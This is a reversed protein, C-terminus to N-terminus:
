YGGPGGMRGEIFKNCKSCSIRTVGHGEGPTPQEVRLPRHGCFPCVLDGPRGAAIEDLVDQWAIIEAEDL